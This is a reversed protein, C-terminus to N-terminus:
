LMVFELVSLYQYVEELVLEFESALVSLYQYVEELVLEFESV